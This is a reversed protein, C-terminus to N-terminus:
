HLQQHHHQHHNNHNRVAVHQQPPPQQHHPQHHLQNHHPDHNQVPIVHAVSVPSHFPVHYPSALGATPLQPPMVALRSPLPPSLTAPPPSQKSPVFEPARANLKSFSANRSLSPDSVVATPSDTPSAASPHPTELAPVLEVVVEEAM